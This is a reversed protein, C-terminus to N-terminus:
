TMIPVIMGEMLTDLLTPQEQYKQIIYCIRDKIM